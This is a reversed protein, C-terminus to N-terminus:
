PKSNHMLKSNYQRIDLCRFIIDSVNNETRTEANPFFESVEKIAWCIALKPLYQM